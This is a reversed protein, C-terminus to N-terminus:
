LDPLAGAEIEALLRAREELEDGTALRWGSADEGPVRVRRSLFLREEIPVDASQTLLMGSPARMESGDVEVAVSASALMVRAAQEEMAFSIQKAQASTNVAYWEVNTEDTLKAYVDPHVTVTIPTENIANDVLYQLSTSSIVPAKALM